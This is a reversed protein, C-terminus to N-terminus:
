GGRGLAYWGEREGLPGVEAWKELQFSCCSRYGGVEFTLEVVVM